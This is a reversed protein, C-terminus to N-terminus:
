LVKFDNISPSKTFRDILKVVNEHNIEKLVIIEEYARLIDDDNELSIQKILVRDNTNDDVADSNFLYIKHQQVINKFTHFFCVM